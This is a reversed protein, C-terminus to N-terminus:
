NDNNTKANPSRLAKCKDCECELLYQEAICKISLDIDIKCGIIKAITKARSIIADETKTRGHARDIVVGDLGSYKTYPYKRIMSIIKNDRMERTIQVRVEKNM